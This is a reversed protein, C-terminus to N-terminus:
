YRACPGMLTPAAKWALGLAGYEDLRMSDGTRIALETVDVREAMRELLDYYVTDVLM